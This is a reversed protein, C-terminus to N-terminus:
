LEETHDVVAAGGVTQRVAEAGAMAEAKTQYGEGTAAIEHEDTHLRWSYTAGTQYIEFETAM